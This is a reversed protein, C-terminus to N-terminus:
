FVMAVIDADKKQIKKLFEERESGNLSYYHLVAQVWKKKSNMLMGIFIGLVVSLAMSVVALRLSVWLGELLRLFNTGQFLAQIGLNQM